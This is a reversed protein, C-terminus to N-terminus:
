FLGAEIRRELLQNIGHFILRFRRLLRCGTGFRLCLTGPFIRWAPQIRRHETGQFPMAILFLHLGVRNKPLRKQGALGTGHFLDASELLRNGPPHDGLTLPFPQFYELVHQGPHLCLLRWLDPTHFGIKVPIGHAHTLIAFLVAAIPVAIRFHGGPSKGTIDLILQGALRIIQRAVRVTGNGKHCVFAPFHCDQFGERLTRFPFGDIRCKVLDHCVQFPLLYQGM